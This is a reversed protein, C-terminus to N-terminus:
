IEVFVELDPEPVVVVGVGLFHVAESSVAPITEPVGGARFILSNLSNSMLLTAGVTLFYLAPRLNPTLSTLMRMPVM